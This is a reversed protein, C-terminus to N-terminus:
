PAGTGATGRPQEATQRRGADSTAPAADQARAPRSGTVAVGPRTGLSPLVANGYLPGQSTLLGTTAVQTAGGGALLPRLARQRRLGQSAGALGVASQFLEQYVARRDHAASGHDERQGDPDPRTAFCRALTDVQRILLANRRTSRRERDEAVAPTLIPAPRRAREALVARHGARAVPAGASITPDLQEIGPCSRAPSRRRRRRVVRRARTLARDTARLLPPLLAITASLDQQRAALAQWRRTSRTVLSALQTQRERRSGRFVQENGEVSESLDHPQTGLLAQNVISSAEFAGASYKLSKNLAQGGTLGQVIPDQSADEAATPQGNLSAGLGQLLTQLNARASSTLASLVRDLQM